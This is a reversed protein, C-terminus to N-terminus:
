FALVNVDGLLTLCVINFNGAVIKKDNIWVCKGTNDVIDQVLMNPGGSNLMVAAGVTIPLSPDTREQVLKM